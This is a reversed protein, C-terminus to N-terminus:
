IKTCRRHLSKLREAISWAKKWPKKRIADTAKAEAAKLKKQLTEQRAAMRDGNHKAFYKFRELMETIFAVNHEPTIEKQKRFNTRAYSGALMHCVFVLCRMSYSPKKHLDVKGM